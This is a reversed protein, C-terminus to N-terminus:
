PKWGGTLDSVLVEDVELLVVVFPGDVDVDDAVGEFSELREVVEDAEAVFFAVAGVYGHGVGAQM